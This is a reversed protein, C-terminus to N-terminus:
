PGPRRAPSESPLLAALGFPGLAEAVEDARDSWAPGHGSLELLRVRDDGDDPEPALRVELASDGLKSAGRDGWEVVVVGDAEVQEALALDEVESLTDLRYLDAHLFRAVGETADPVPYDRVLVFTPSTVPGVVGLGRALGQAFTTKGVGLGGTLLLVDGPRCVRALGGALARTEEPGATRARLSWGAETLGGM